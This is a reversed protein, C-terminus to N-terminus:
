IKTALKVIEDVDPGMEFLENNLSVNERIFVNDNITARHILPDENLVDMDLVTSSSNKECKTEAISTNRETIYTEEDSVMNCGGNRTANEKDLLSGRRCNTPNQFKDQLPMEAVLKTKIGRVCFPIDHNQQQIIDNMRM